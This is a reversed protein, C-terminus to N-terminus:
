QPNASSNKPNFDPSDDQGYFSVFHILSGEAHRAPTQIIPIRFASARACGFFFFFLLRDTGRTDYRVAIVRM